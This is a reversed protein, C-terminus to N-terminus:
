SGKEKKTVGPGRSITQNRRYEPHTKGGGNVWDLFDKM